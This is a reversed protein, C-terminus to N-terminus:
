RGSVLQCRGRGAAYRNSHDQRQCRDQSASTRGGERPLSSSGEYKFTEGHMGHSLAANNKEPM